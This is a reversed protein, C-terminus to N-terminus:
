KTKEWCEQCLKYTRVDFLPVGTYEPHEPKLDYKYFGVIEKKLNCIACIKITM